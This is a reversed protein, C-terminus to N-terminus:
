DIIFPTFEFIVETTIICTILTRRLWSIEFTGKTANYKGMSFRAPAEAFSIIAKAAPLVIAPFRKMKPAALLTIIMCFASFFDPSVKVKRSNAFIPM